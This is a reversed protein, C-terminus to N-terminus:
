GQVEEADCGTFGSEPLATEKDACFYIMSSQACIEDRSNLIEADIFCANRMMRTQRARITIVGEDTRVPKIYKVELKSTVGTTQLKRNVLWEATEDLLLAQVGGHLIGPWGQHNETPNWKTFIYDGEEFFELHLGIPNHPACGICNYGKMALWPNKLRYM